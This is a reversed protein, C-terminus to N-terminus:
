IWIQCRGKELLLNLARQPHNAGADSCGTGYVLFRSPMRHVEAKADM